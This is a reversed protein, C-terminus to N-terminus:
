IAIRHKQAFDDIAQEVISSNSGGLEDALAKILEVTRIPLSFSRTVRYEKKRSSQRSATGDGVKFADERTLNKAM